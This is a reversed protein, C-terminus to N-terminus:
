EDKEKAPSYSDGGPWIPSIDQQGGVGRLDAIASV